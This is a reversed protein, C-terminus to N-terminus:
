ASLTAIVEDVLETATERDLGLATVLEERLDVEAPSDDLDVLALAYVIKYALRRADRSLIEAQAYLHARRDRHELTANLRDLIGDIERDDLARPSAAVPATRYATRKVTPSALARVCPVLARFAALEDDGMGGDATMALYALTVIADLEASGIM